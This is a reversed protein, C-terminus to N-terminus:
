QICQDTLNTANKWCLYYYFDLLYVSSLNVFLLIIHGSIDIGRESEPVTILSLLILVFVSHTTLWFFIRQQIWFIKKKEYSSRLPDGIKLWNNLPFGVNILIAFLGRIWDYYQTEMQTSKLDTSLENDFVCITEESKNDMVQSESKTEM